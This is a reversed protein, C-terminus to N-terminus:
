LGSIKNIYYRRVCQLCFKFTPHQIQNRYGEVKSEYNIPHVIDVPAKGRSKSLQEMNILDNKPRSFIFINQRYWWEVSENSWLPARLVDFCEYGNSKFLDIWYSQWQENIHNTGGQNKIAASFLVTDSAMCLTDIFTKAYNKPIHEAVELSICLDYKDNIEPMAIEFDVSTFSINKSLLHEKKVWSGDYGKLTKSGLHEAAALWAGRGCGIDVVSQPQFYKYLLNLVIKASNSMGVLKESYFGADYLKSLTNKM